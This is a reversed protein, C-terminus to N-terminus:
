AERSFTRRIDNDVSPGRSPSIDTNSNAGDVSVIAIRMATMKVPRASTTENGNQCKEARDFRRFHSQRCTDTDATIGRSQRAVILKRM